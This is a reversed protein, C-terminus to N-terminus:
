APPSEFAQVVGQWAGAELRHETYRGGTYQGICRRWFAQAPLNAPMQGVEWPGPLARFVAHALTSGLRQGRHQRLVFFQDMWHGSASVKVARDALAFGAYSGAVLAVFAQCHSGPTFFRELAYGYRGQADLPQYWIDSLEYQYLELMQQLAPRDAPVAPRVLAAAEPEVPAPEHPAVVEVKIRDPDECYMAYYGPGSAYPYQAEYLLVHGAAKAWAAIEDVHARSRGHFALHNLGVRKRHYGAALHEAPAPLFCLYSRGHAYNMGGSWRDAEWGLHAMFPTWFAISRELESVYIEAHHLM